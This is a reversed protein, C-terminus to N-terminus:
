GNRISTGWQRLVPGSDWRRVRVSDVSGALRPTPLGTVATAANWWSLTDTGVIPTTRYRLAYSTATGSSGDDGPATWVLSVTSDAATQATAAQPRLVAGLLMVLAALRALRGAYARARPTPENPNSPTM